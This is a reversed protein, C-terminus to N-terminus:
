ILYGNFLLRKVYLIAANIMHKDRLLGLDSYGVEEFGLHWFHMVVGPAIGCGEPGPM